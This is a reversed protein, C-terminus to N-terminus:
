SFAMDLFIPEIGHTRNTIPVNDTDKRAEQPPPDPPPVETVFTVTDGV